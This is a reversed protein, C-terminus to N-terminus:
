QLTTACPRLFIARKIIYIVWYDGSKLVIRKLYIFVIDLKEMGNVFTTLIKLVLVTLDNIMSNAGCYTKKNRSTIPLAKMCSNLNININHAGVLHRPYSGLQVPQM